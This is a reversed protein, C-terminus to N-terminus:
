RSSGQLYDEAKGYYDGAKSYSDVAWQYLRAKQEKDETNDAAKKYYDGAKSYCEAANRCLMAKQKKDETNDAARQYFRAKDQYTSKEAALRDIAKKVNIHWPKNYKELNLNISSSDGPNLMKRLHNDQRKLFFYSLLGSLAAPGLFAVALRNVPTKFTDTLPIKIKSYIRLGGLGILGGALGGVFGTKFIKNKEDRFLSPKEEKNVSSCVSSLLSFFLLLSFVIKLKMQM